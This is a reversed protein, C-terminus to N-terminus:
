CVFAAPVVANALEVLKRAAIVPDVFPRPENEHHSRVRATLRLGLVLIAIPWARVHGVTGPRLLHRSFCKFLTRSWCDLGLAKCSRGYRRPELQLM